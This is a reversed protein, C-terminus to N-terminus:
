AEVLHLGQAPKKVDSRRNGKEECQKEDCSVSLATRGEVSPKCGEFNDERSDCGLDCAQNRDNDALANRVALLVRFLRKGSHSSSGRDRNESRIDQCPSPTGLTLGSV